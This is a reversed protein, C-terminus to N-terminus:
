QKKGQRIVPWFIGNRKIFNNLCSLNTKLVRCAQTQTMRESALNEVLQRRERKHRCTMEAWTEIM